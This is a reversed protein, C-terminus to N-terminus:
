QGKEEPLKARTWEDWGGRFLRVDTFGLGILANAVTEGDECGTGSCYLVVPRAKHKELRMRQKSYCAEFDERPLSLAKPIHGFRHFIEPRADLILAHKQMERFAALDIPRVRPEDTQATEASRAEAPSRKAIREAAQRVRETKSAYVWPLPAARFQNVAFGCCVAAAAMMWLTFFDGLFMKRVPHFHLQKM